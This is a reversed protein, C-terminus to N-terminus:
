FLTPELQKLHFSKRHHPTYGHRIIADIHEKTPFKLRLNTGDFSIPQIPEFWRAFEEAPTQEKIRNLCVQWVESNTYANAM